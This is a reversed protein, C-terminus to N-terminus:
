DDQFENVTAIIQSVEEYSLAPHVPISVVKDAVREAIPITTGFEKYAPQQHICTPYYVKAGVGNEHLYDLLEERNETLLTYQHYAHTRDDPVIPTRVTKSEIERMFREANARRESLYEPLSQLQERGIAAAISTMRFNHGVRVHEYGGEPPRGHNVFSKARKAVAEDNTTLMGGEGTTM